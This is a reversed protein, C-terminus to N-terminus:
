DIGRPERQVQERLASTVSLRVRPVLNHAALEVTRSRREQRQTRALEALGSPLRKDAGQSELTAAMAQMSRVDSIPLLETAAAQGSASLYDLAEELARSRRRTWEAFHSAARAGVEADQSFDYRMRHLDLAKVEEFDFEAGAEISPVVLGDDAREVSLVLGSAALEVGLDEVKRDYVSRMRAARSALRQVSAPSNESVLHGGDQGYIEKGLRRAEDPDKMKKLSADARMSELSLLKQGYESVEGWKEYWTESPPTFPLFKRYKAACRAHYEEEELYLRHMAVSAAAAAGAENAAEWARAQEHYVARKADHDEMRSAYSRLRFGFGVLDEDEESTQRSHAQSAMQEYDMGMVELMPTRVRLVDEPLQRLMAYVANVGRGVIEERGRSVLKEWQGADLGEAERRHDAYAHVRSMAEPLPSDPAALVEEVMERVLRNPRVMDKRNTDARWARRDAPLTAILLQPLSEQVMQQHAWRKIYTAVNRREYGVASSLHKVAQKEDLFADVGRRFINKARAGIKGKQTGDAALTGAGADVMALHCHVHETDVQIVGVYRLDDYFSTNVRELGRMVAMRLKLQDLNGRYEGRRTCQFDEPILGHRRLYEQDFSVVTKMVTHGADFLEQIQSSAENLEQNSLSASKNGFAVGARGRAKSMRRKIGPVGSSADTSEVATERAMYRTIFKEVPRGTIPAVQETALERAMYRDVYDGPTGGRSGGGGPLPVTYENVLVVDQKLSM